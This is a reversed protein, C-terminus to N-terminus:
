LKNLCEVIKGLLEWVKRLIEEDDNVDIVFICEIGVLKRVRLLKVESYDIGCVKNYLGWGRKGFLCILEFEMKEYLDRGNFIGNDYMVKKFVKGVGLFDGIDLIM